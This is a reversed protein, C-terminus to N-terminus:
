LKNLGLRIGLKELLVGTAITAIGIGIGVFLPNSQQKKNLEQIRRMTEQYGKELKSYKENNMINEGKLFM